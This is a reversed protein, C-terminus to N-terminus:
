PLLVIKGTTRRALLDEFARRTESLPYTAGTVPTLTGAAVMGFMAELPERYAGPVTLAPRLWFGCVALNRDTLTAVDVPPRPQRSANGFTVLRGFNGLSGLAAEFVAGGVADLVVDAPQGDNAEVIRAAYGDAEGSVAADAGLSLAIERKAPTSATAIVRGAGFQRALQILLSGVGGAAANVVVTEGPSLRASGRLLHWATLGQVLLALADADRVGAPVEVASAEDVAARQAFGGGDFLTALVRRRDATHGVVETGPIFPVRPTPHYTGAIRSTDAFNVGAAAVEVLTQGSAPVPDPVDALALVEPGGFRGCRVALM